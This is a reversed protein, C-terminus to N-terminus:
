SCLPRHLVTARGTRVFWGCTRAEALNQCVSGVKTGFDDLYCKMELVRRDGTFCVLCNRRCALKKDPGRTSFKFAHALPTVRAERSDFLVIMFLGNHM